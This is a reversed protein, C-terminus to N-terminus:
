AWLPDPRELCCEDFRFPAARARALLQLDTQSREPNLYRGVTVAAVVDAGALQLASAASQLRASSTLTDDVLLFATGVVDM